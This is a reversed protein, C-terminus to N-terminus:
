RLLEWFDSEHIIMIHAGNKNHEIAKREKSSHGSEGVIDKSQDGVVLYNLTKGATKMIQGSREVVAQMADQRPISLVGTFCFKKGKLSENKSHTKIDDLASYDVDTNQYFDKYIEDKESQSLEPVETKIESPESDLSIMQYFVDEPIIEIDQGKLKLREAKKQKSSKGDKISKCYDNNGLILFDTKKTINKGCHGGANVVLQQAEKRVMKELTGTFICEKGYFPNTEDIPGAEPTLTEPDFHDRKRKFLEIFADLSDFDKLIKEQAARYVSNTIKCDYLSRHAQDESFPIGLYDVVDALRHHHKEPFLKRCIRITDVFIPNFNKIGITECNSKLFNIDFSVNHGIIYDDGIFDIFDFLVDEIKPANEVMEDTIGTLASIFSPIYHKKDDSILLFYPPKILTSFNKLINNQSIKLASLEIINDYEPSLGTTEIDIVTYDDPFAIKSEKKLAM